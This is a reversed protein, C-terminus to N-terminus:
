ITVTDWGERGEEEWCKEESGEEGNGKFGLRGTTRGTERQTLLCDSRRFKVNKWDSSIRM